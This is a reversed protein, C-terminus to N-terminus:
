MEGLGSEAFSSLQAIPQLGWVGILWHWVMENNKAMLIAVCPIVHNDRMQARFRSHFSSASSHRWVFTVQTRPMIIGKHVTRGPLLEGPFHTDVGARCRLSGARNIRDRVIARSGTMTLLQFFHEAFGWIVGTGAIHQNLM